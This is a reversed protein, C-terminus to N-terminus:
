AIKRGSIDYPQIRVWRRRRVSPAWPRLGLTGLEAIEDDDEVASARGVVIVSWGTQTRDDWGDIEFTVPVHRAAADLKKGAATQFVIHGRHWRYNVPFIEVDGDSVFAVRGVPTRALLEECEARSLVELGVHDFADM